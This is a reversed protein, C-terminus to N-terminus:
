ILGFLFPCTGKGRVNKSKKLTLFDTRKKRLERFVLSNCSITPPYISPHCNKLFLGKPPLERQKVSYDCFVQKRSEFM